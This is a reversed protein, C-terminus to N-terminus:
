EKEKFISAERKIVTYDGIICHEGADWTQGGVMRCEATLRDNTRVENIILCIAFIMVAIAALGLMPIVPDKTTDSNKM